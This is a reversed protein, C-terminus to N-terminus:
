EGMVGMARLTTDIAQAQESAPRQELCALYGSDFGMAFANVLLKRIPTEAGDTLRHLYALTLQLGELDVNNRAVGSKTTVWRNM